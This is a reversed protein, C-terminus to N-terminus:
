FIANKKDQVLSQGWPHDQNSFTSDLCDLALGQDLILYLIYNQKYSIGYVFRIHLYVPKKEIPFNMYKESNFFFFDQIGILCPPHHSLQLVKITWKKM